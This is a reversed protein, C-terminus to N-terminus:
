NQQGLGLEQQTTAHQTRYRGPSLGEYETFRRTLHSASDFGCRVAVQELPLPTTELLERAHALRAVVVYRSPPLGTLRTFVATFHSRHLGAMAALDTIRLPADVHHAIHNLVSAVAEVSATSAGAAPTPATTTSETAALLALLDNLRAEACHSGTVTAAGLVSMPRHPGTVHICSSTCSM